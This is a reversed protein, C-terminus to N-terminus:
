KLHWKETGIKPDNSVHITHRYTIPSLQDSLDIGQKGKNYDVIVQPKMIHENANNTKGTEVMTASHSPKTSIM